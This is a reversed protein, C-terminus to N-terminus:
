RQVEPSPEAPAGVFRAYVMVHHRGGDDKTTRSIADFAGAPGFPGEGKKVYQATASATTSNGGTEEIVAWEGPRARLEDAVPTWREAKSRRRNPPQEWRLVGSM